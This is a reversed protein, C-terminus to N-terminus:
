IGALSISPVLQDSVHRNGLRLRVLPTRTRHFGLDRHKAHPPIQNAQAVFTCAIAGARVGRFKGDRYIFDLKKYSPHTADGREGRIRTGFGVHDM